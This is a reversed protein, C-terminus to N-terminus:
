LSTSLGEKHTKKKQPCASERWSLELWTEYNQTTRAEEVSLSKGGPEQEQSRWNSGPGPDQGPGTPQEQKAGSSLDGFAAQFLGM